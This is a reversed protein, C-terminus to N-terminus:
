IKGFNWLRAIGGRRGVRILRLTGDACLGIGHAARAAPDLDLHRRAATVAQRFTPLDSRNDPHALRVLDATDFLDRLPSDSLPMHLM